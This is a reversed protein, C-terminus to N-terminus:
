TVTLVVASVTALAVSLFLMGGAMTQLMRDDDAMERGALGRQAWRYTVGASLLVYAFVILPGATGGLLAIGLVTTVSILIAFILYRALTRRVPSLRDFARERGEPPTHGRARGTKEAKPRSRGAVPTPAAARTRSRRGM